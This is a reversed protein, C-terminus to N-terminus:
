KVAFQGPACGKFRRFNRYFSASSTFGSKLAVETLPLMPEQKMVEISYEVRKRNVYDSFTTKMEANIAQYVYTRNTNLLSAVDSVKLNPRLFLQQERMIDDIRERLMAYNADDEDSVKEEISLQEAEVEIQNIDFHQKLGTYAVAFLLSSFLLAPVALVMPNGFFYARGLINCGLSILSTIFFLQLMLKAWWLSREDTAAYYSAVMHEFRRIRIIGMLLIVILELGFVVRMAMQVGQIADPQQMWQATGMSLMCLLAPLLLCLTHWMPWHRQTLSKIYLYYLPYVAPNCFAYLTEAFPQLETTKSFYVAHCAYLATATAMFRLLWLRPKSGYQVMELAIVLTMVGCVFM